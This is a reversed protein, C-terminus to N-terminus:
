SEGPQEICEYWHSALQLQQKPSNGPWYLGHHWWHRTPELYLPRSSSYGFILRRDVNNVEYHFIYIYAETQSTTNEGTNDRVSFNNM